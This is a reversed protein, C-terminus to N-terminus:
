TVRVHINFLLLLIYYYLGNGCRSGNEHQNLVAITLDRRVTNLGVKTRVDSLTSLTSLRLMVETM